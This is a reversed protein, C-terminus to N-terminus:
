KGETASVAKSNLKPNLSGTSHALEVLAIFVDEKSTVLRSRADSLQSQSQILDLISKLGAKYSELALEYSNTATDLYSQSYKFKSVATNFNYYKIWVDSSVELEAQILSELAVDAEREAQIKKNVNTFGDFLDWNIKGYVAYDNDSKGLDERSYQKKYYEHNNQDASGGISFNPLLDSNAAVVAAQKSKLQAKLSVIDQRKQLAEDILKSVDEEKVDSPVEKAPLAIEFQTDASVGIVQALNAKATKINGKADELNYLSNEYNSKAQLVDLQAALGVEYRKQAAEYDAKTNEVNAQAAELAAQASYLKYYANETDRLLDQMAQNYQADASLILQFTKEVNASRGGFDLLLYTFKITPGYYLQDTNRLEQTATIRERTITESATVQPYLAGEAQKEVARAVRTNQWAQRTTPNNQLAIDVLEILTLPRSNVLKQKQESIAKWAPDTDKTKKTLAAQKKDKPKSQAKDKEEALNNAFVKAEQMNESEVDYSFQSPAPPEGTTRCGSVFFIIGIFFIFKVQRCFINM